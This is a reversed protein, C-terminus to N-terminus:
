GLTCGNLVCLWLSSALHTKCACVEGSEMQQRMTENTAVRLTVYLHAEAKEKQRKEKEVQEQQPAFFFLFAFLSADSM